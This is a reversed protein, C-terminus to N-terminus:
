LEVARRASRAHDDIKRTQGGCVYIGDGHPVGSRAWLVPFWAVVAFSLGLWLLGCYLVSSANM